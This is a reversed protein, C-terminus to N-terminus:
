LIVFEPLVLFEVAFKLSPAFDIVMRRDLLGNDIPKMNGDYYGNHYIQVEACKCIESGSLMGFQISESFCFLM